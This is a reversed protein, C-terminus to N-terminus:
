GIPIKTVYLVMNDSKKKEKRLFIKIDKDLQNKKNWQKNEQYYKVSFNKFFNIYISFFLLFFFYFLEYFISKDSSKFLESKFKLKNHNIYNM